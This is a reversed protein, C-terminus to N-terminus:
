ATTSINDILGQAEENKVVMSYVGYLHRRKYGGSVALDYEAFQLNKYHGVEIFDPNIFYAREPPCRQVLAVNITGFDTELKDIAVGGTTEGQNLRVHPEYFGSIKRKVWANCIITKAMNEAGVKEFITQLLDNINKETIAAGALDTVNSDTPNIYQRLGGMSSPETASMDAAVGRLGRIAAAELLATQQKLTFALLRDLTPKEGYYNTNENIFSSQIAADFVQVWNYPFSYIPTGRYPSDANEAVAIGALYVTLATSHTAATSGAYGRTVTATTASAVATVWMLEDDIQIVTGLQLQYASSANLYLTTQATDTFGTTSSVTLSGTWLDDKQWEVKPNDCTFQDIGGILKLFPVDLPSM